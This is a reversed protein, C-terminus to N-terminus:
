ALRARLIRAAIQINPAATLAQIMAVARAGSACASAVNDANLGGIAVVPVSIQRVLRRLRRLGQVPHEPGKTQSPFIAGFAVYDAGSQAAAKAEDIAHASYGIIKSPGLLRRCADVSPDDAGVHVGDAGLHLVLAPDDNIIFCFSYEAKLRMIFHAAAERRQRTFDDQGKVRLQLVDAGGQVLETALYELSREPCLSNDCIAYLDRIRDAPILTLADGRASIEFAADLASRM